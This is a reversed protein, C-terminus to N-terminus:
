IDKSVGETGNRLLARHPSGQGATLPALAVRSTACRFDDGLADVLLCLETM